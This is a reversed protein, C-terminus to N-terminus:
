ACLFVIVLELPIVIGSVIINQNSLSGAKISFYFFLGLYVTILGTLVLLRPSLKFLMIRSKTYPFGFLYEMANDKYEYKFLDQGYNGAIWLVQVWLTICALDPIQEMHGKFIDLGMANLLLVLPFVLQPSLRLATPFLIDRFEKKYM